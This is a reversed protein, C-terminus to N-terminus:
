CTRSDHQQQPEGSQSSSYSIRAPRDQVELAPCSGGSPVCFSSSCSPVSNKLTAMTETYGLLVSCPRGLDSVM